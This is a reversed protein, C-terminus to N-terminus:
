VSASNASSSFPAPESMCTTSARDDTRSRKRLPHKSGFQAADVTEGGDGIRHLAELTVLSSDHQIEM